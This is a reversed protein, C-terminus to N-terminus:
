NTVEISYFNEDCELCLFKYEKLDSVLLQSGCRFCHKNTGYKKYLKEKLKDAKVTDQEDYYHDLLKKYKRKLTM